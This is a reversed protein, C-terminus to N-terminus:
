QRGAVVRQDNEVANGVRASQGVEVRVDDLVHRHQFVRRGHGDVTRAARVADDQDLGLPTRLAFEMDGVFRLEGDGLRHLADFGHTGVLEDAELLVHAPELVIVAALLEIRQYTRNDAGALLYVVGLADGVVPLVIDEARDERHVVLQAELAAVLLGGIHGRNGVQVVGAHNVIRIVLARVDIGADVLFHVVPQGYTEGRLEHVTLGATRRRVEFMGDLLAGVADVPVLGAGVVLLRHVVRVQGVRHLVDVGVLFARAAVEHGVPEEIEFKRDFPEREPRLEAVVVAALHVSGVVAAVGYRTLFDVAAGLQGVVVRRVPRPLVHKFEVPIEAFMVDVECTEEGHLLGLICGSRLAAFAEYVVVRAEVPHVAGLVLDGDTRREPFLVENRAHETHIVAEVAFVKQCEGSAGVRERGESFVVFPSEEGRSGNGPM